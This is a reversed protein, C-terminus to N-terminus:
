RCSVEQESLSVNREAHRLEEAITKRCQSVSKMWVATRWIGYRSRSMKWVGTLLISYNLDGCRSNCAARRVM